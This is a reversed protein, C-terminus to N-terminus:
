WWTWENDGNFSDHQPWRWMKPCLWRPKFYLCPQLLAGWSIILRFLGRWRPWSCPGNCWLIAVSIWGFPNVSPDAFTAAFMKRLDTLLFWPFRPKRQPLQQITQDKQPPTILGAHISGWADYIDRHWWHSLLVSHSGQLSLQGWSAVARRCIACSESQCFFWLQFAQENWSQWWCRTTHWIQPGWFWM